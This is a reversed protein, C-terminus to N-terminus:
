TLRYKNNDDDKGFPVSEHLLNPIQLLLKRTDEELEKRRRDLGAIENGISRMRLIKKQDKKRAIERTVSNKEHKLKEVQKITERLKNDKSLLDRFMRIKEPDHRRRLNEEVKKPNERILRIDLM